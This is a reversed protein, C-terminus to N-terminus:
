QPPRPDLRATAAHEELWLAATVGRPYSRSSHIRGALVQDSFAWVSDDPGTLWAVHAADARRGEEDWPM